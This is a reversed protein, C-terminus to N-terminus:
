GVKKWSIEESLLACYVWKLSTLNAVKLEDFILWDIELDIDCLFVIFIQINQLSFRLINITPGIPNSGMIAYAGPM